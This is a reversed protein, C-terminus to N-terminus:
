LFNNPTEYKKSHEVDFIGSSVEISNPDYKGISLDNEGTHISM